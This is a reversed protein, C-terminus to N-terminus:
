RRGSTQQITKIAVRSKAMLLNVRPETSLTSRQEAEWLDNLVQKRETPRSAKM